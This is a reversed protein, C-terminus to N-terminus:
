YGVITTTTHGEKKKTCYGIGKMVGYNIHFGPWMASIGSSSHGNADRSPNSAM